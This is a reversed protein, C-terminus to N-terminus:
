VEEEFNLFLRPLSLPILQLLCVNLLILIFFLTKQVDFSAVLDPTCCINGGLMILQLPKRQIYIKPM